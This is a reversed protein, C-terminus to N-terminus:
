RSFPTISGWCCRSSKFSINARSIFIEWNRAQLSQWFFNCLCWVCHFTILKHLQLPIKNCLSIGEMARTKVEESCCKSIRVLSFLLRQFLKARLNLSSAYFLLRTTISLSIIFTLNEEKCFGTTLLHNVVNLEKSSITM